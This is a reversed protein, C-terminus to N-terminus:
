FIIDFNGFFLKWFLMLHYMCSLLFSPGRQSHNSNQLEMFIEVIRKYSFILFDLNYFILRCGNGM